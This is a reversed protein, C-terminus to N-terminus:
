ALRGAADLLALRVQGINVDNGTVAVLVLGDGGKAAFVQGETAQLLVLTLPPHGIAGTVTTLRQLLHASLAAAASTDQGDIASDAIVIGDDEAVLVASRVGPVRTIEDLVHQERTM